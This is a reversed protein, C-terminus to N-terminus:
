LDGLIDDIELDINDLDPDELDGLDQDFTGIDAELAGTVPPGEVCSQTEAPKNEITGCSNQDTCIRSQVGNECSSWATCIWDETCEAPPTTGTCGSVFVVMGIFLVMLIKINM